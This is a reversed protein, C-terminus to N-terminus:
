MYVLKRVYVYMYKISANHNPSVVDSLTLLSIRRPLFRIEMCFQLNMFEQVMIYMHIHIYNHGAYYHM